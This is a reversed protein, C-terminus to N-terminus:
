FGEWVYAAFRRVSRFGIRQYLRIAQANSATVTLSTKECGNERLVGLARRILEYGIGLGQAAPAVCVQTIHGTDSAVSSCLIVGAARGEADFAALSAPAYFQGCGPYQVINGIFRRAGAWSRYQDNIRADVHGQYAGAIVAAADDQRRTDWPRFQFRSATPAPPLRDVEALDALMFQRPYVQAFKAYATMRDFAGRAMMLQTEVREVSPTGILSELVSALLLNENETTDFDRLIYL